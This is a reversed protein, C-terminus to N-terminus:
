EERGQLVRLVYDREVHGVIYRALPALVYPITHSCVWTLHMHFAARFLKHEENRFEM